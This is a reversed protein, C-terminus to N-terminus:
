LFLFIWQKKFSFYLTKTEKRRRKRILDDEDLYDEDLYCGFLSKNKMEYYIMNQFINDLGYYSYKIEPNQYTIQRDVIQCSELSISVVKFETETNSSPQKPCSQIEGQLYGLKPKRIQKFKNKAWARLQGQIGRGFWTM